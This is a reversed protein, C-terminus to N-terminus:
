ALAIFSGVINPISIKLAQPLIILGTKQVFSLGMADAAEYQGKPIVQLGIPTKNANPRWDFIGTM